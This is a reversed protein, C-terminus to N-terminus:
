IDVHKYYADSYIKIEHIFSKRNRIITQLPIHLCIFMKLM